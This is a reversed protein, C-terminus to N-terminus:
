FLGPLSLGAADMAKSLEAKLVAEAKKLAANSAETILEEVPRGAAAVRAHDVNISIIQKDCSVTVRVAGGAAEAEVTQVKVRARAEDVGSKLKQAKLLMDALQRM